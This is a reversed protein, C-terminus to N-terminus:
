RELTLTFDLREISVRGATDPNEVRVDIRGDAAVFRQPSQVSTDGWELGPLTVWTGRQQDRLSVILPTRGTAGYSDLHLTLGPVAGGRFNSQPQFRLAYAGEYLYVDYPGDGSGSGPDLLEWTMLGPPISIAGGSAATRPRLSVIYLTEDATEFPRDLIAVDLPSQQVWGVLFVGSGRAGGDYPGLLWQLLSFRRYVARDGYYSFAAGSAGLIVAIATDYGGSFDGGM